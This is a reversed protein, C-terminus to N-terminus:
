WANRPRERKSEGEECAVHLLTRGNKSVITLDIGLDILTNLARLNDAPIEGRTSRTAHRECSVTTSLMTRQRKAM